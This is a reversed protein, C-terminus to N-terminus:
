YKSIVYFVYDVIFVFYQNIVLFFYKTSTFNNNFKTYLLTIHLNLRGIVPHNSDIISLIVTGFVIHNQNELFFAYVIRHCVM